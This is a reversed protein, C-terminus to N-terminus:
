FDILRFDVKFINAVENRRCFHRRFFPGLFLLPFVQCPLRWRPNFVFQVFLRDSLSSKPAVALMFPSAYLRAVSEPDARRGPLFGPGPM